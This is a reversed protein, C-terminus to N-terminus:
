GQKEFWADAIAKAKADEDTGHAAGVIESEGQKLAIVLLTSHEPGGPEPDSAAIRYIIAFPKFIGDELTGRWEVVDNAKNPFAGRARSMTEGYLDSKKGRYRINLWSRADGGEFSLEYGGYGPCIATFYDIEPEEEFESSAVTAVFKNATTSYYSKIEAARAISVALLLCLLRPIM